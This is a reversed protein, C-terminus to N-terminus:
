LQIYINESDDSVEFVLLDKEAPGQLVKGTNSFESGHCPCVLQTSYANLECGQHTCKMYLAQYQNVGAEYICIPFELQDHKAIVFNNHRVKENKSSVFDAKKVVLKKNEMVGTVYRVNSCGQLMMPLASAGVCAFGTTHLFKRRNM